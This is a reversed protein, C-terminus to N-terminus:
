KCIESSGSYLSQWSCRGDLAGIQIFEDWQEITTNGEKGYILHFEDHCGRCLTGGNEVDWFPVYTIALRILIERDDIWSFQNYFKLFEDVLIKFAKIHHAVLKKSHVNCKRCTYWNRKHVNLQWKKAESLKRIGEYISSIGPNNAYRLFNRQRCKESYAADHKRGLNITNGLCFIKNKLGRKSSAKRWADPTSHGKTFVWEKNGKVFRGKSDRM